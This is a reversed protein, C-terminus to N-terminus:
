CHVHQQNHTELPNHTARENARFTQLPLPSLQPSQGEFQNPLDDSPHVVLDKEKFCVCQADM